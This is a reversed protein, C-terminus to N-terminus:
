AAIPGIGSGDDRGLQGDPGADRVHRRDRVGDNDLRDDLIEFSLLRDEPLREVVEAGTADEGRVRRGQGDRFDCGANLVRRTDHPHVEEIGYWGHPEDFHNVGQLRVRDRRVGNCRQTRRPALVYSM